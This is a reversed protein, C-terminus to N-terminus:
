ELWGGHFFFIVRQGGKIIHYHCELLGESSPHHSLNTIFRRSGGLSPLAMLHREILHSVTVLEYSDYLPSGCDWIGLEAEEKQHDDERRKLTQQM